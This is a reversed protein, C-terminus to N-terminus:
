RKLIRLIQPDSLSQARYHVGSFDHDDSHPGPVAITCAGAAVGARSGHHSDELVMMNVAAVQMRLAALLYIDPAPKGQAVDEATVVFDLRQSIGVLQLVELAFRRSSSTAVCRPIKVSDLFDLLEVVGSLARVRAPLIRAFIEASEAALCDATDTLQEHEIMMAFARPGPLGTMANKLARTFQRGRRNLLEHGVESYLEETNVLLGDLDFAVADICHAWPPSFEHRHTPSSFKGNSEPSPQFSDNM